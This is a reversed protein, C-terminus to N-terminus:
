ILFRMTSKIDWMTRASVTGIKKRLRSMDIARVQECLITSRVHLGNKKDPEVHLHFRLDKQRWKTSLPVEITTPSVRNGIDQQIIVVPRTKGEESGVVPSLDCSFIDGYHVARM